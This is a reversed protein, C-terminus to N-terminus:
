SGINNEAQRNLLMAIVRDLAEIERAYTALTMARESDRIKKKTKRWYEHLEARQKRLEKITRLIEDINMTM